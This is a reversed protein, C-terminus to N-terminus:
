AAAKDARRRLAALSLQPWPGGLSELTTLTKNRERWVTSIAHLYVREPEDPQQRFLKEYRSLVLQDYLPRKAYGSLEAMYRRNVFINAPYLEILQRYGALRDDLDFLPNAATAVATELKVAVRDDAECVTFDSQAQAVMALFAWGCTVRLGRRLRECRMNIMKSM